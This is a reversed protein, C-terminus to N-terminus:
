QGKLSDLTRICLLPASASARLAKRRRPAICHWVLQKRPSNSVRPRMHVTWINRLWSATMFQYCLSLLNINLVSHIFHLVAFAVICISRLSFQLFNGVLESFAACTFRVAEVLGAVVFWQRRLFNSLGKKQLAPVYIEHVSARKCPRFMCRLYLLGKGFCRVCSGWLHLVKGIILVQSFSHVHVFIVVFTWPQSMPWMMTFEFGRLFLLESLRWVLNIALFRTHFHKSESFTFDRPQWKRFVLVRGCVALVDFLDEM